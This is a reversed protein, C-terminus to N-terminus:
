WCDARPATTRSDCAATFVEKESPFCARWSGFRGGEEIRAAAGQRRANFALLDGGDQRLIEPPTEPVFSSVGSQGAAAGARSASASLSRLDPDVASRPRAGGRPPLWSPPSSATPFPAPMPRRSAQPARPLSPATGGGDAPLLRM